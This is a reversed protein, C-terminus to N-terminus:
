RDISRDIYYQKKKKVVEKQNKPECNTGKNTQHKYNTLITLKM